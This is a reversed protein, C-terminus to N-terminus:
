NIEISEIFQIVKQLQTETLQTNGIKIYSEGEDVGTTFCNARKPEETLEEHTGGGVIFFATKEPQNCMGVVTQAPTDAINFYGGAQAGIATIKNQIGSVFAGTAEENEIINGIGIGVGYSANVTNSTGFVASGYIEIEEPEPIKNDLGSLKLNKSEKDGELPLNLIVKNEELLQNIKEEQKKSVQRYLQELAQQEVLKPVIVSTNNAM